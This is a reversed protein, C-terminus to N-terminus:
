FNCTPCVCGCASESWSYGDGKEACDYYAMCRGGNVNKQENKSLKQVGELNLINKLM